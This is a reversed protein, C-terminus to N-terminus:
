DAGQVTGSNLMAQPSLLPNYGRRQTHHCGGPTLRVSCLIDSARSDPMDTFIRRLWGNPRFTRSVLSFEIYLSSWPLCSVDWGSCAPVDGARM